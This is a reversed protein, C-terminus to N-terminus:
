ASGGGAEREYIQDATRAALQAIVPRGTRAADMAIQIQDEAKQAAETDEEVAWIVRRQAGSLGESM